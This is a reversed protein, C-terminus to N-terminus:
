PPILTGSEADGTFYTTAARADPMSSTTFVIVILLVMISAGTLVRALLSSHKVM